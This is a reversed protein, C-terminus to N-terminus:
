MSRAIDGGKSGEREEATTEDALQRVPQQTKLQQKLQAIKEQAKDYENKLFSKNTHEGFLAFKFMAEITAPEVGPIEDKLWNSMCFKVFQGFTRVGKEALIDMIEQKREDTLHAASFLDSRISKHTLPRHENIHLYEPDRSKKEYAM